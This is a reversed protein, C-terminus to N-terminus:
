CWLVSVLLAASLSMEDTSHGVYDDCASDFCYGCLLRQGSNGRQPWFQYAPRVVTDKEWMEGTKMM